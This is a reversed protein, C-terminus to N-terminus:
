KVQIYRRRFYRFYTKKAQVTGVTYGVYMGRLIQATAPRGLFGPYIRFNTRHFMKLASSHKSPRDDLISSFHGWCLFILMNVVCIAFDYFIDCKQGFFETKEIRFQELLACHDQFQKLVDASIPFIRNGQWASLFGCSLTTLKDSDQM